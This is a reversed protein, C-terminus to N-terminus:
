ETVMLSDLAAIKDKELTIHLNVYTGGEVTTEGLPDQEYIVASYADNKSKISADPLVEGLNLYSKRLIDLAEQLNKGTLQPLVVTNRGNGSGLVIDIVAGKTLLSGPVINEGDHKLDLVLNHFESPAYEIHGIKFGRSTLTQLTQRYAANQLNPFVVKEPNHANIILHILRNEKVHAGAVPSQELVVGPKAADDYLSDTVVVTLHAHRAVAHAEEVTLDNCAPVPIFQGHQTYSELHSLVFYGIVCVLLIAALLNLLYFTLRAPFKKM